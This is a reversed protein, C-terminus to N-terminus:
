NGKPYEEDRELAKSIMVLCATFLCFVCGILQLTSRLICINHDFSAYTTTTDQNFM